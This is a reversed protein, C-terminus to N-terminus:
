GAAAARGFKVAQVFQAAVETIENFQGAATRKPNVLESGIGLSHAGCRIFEAANELSVGGVAMLELQPLPGKIDKFYRAGLAGAPFIKLIPAGIRWAAIAETPTMVGPVPLKGYTLCMEVTAPDFIPSLVFDAGAAIAERATQADLVTGAGVYMKGDFRARTQEIMELAGATNLTIEVATVGGDYLAQVTETIEEKAIGRIISVVGCRYIGDMLKCDM